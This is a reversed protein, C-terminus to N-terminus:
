GERGFARQPGPNGTRGQGPHNGLRDPECGRAITPAVAALGVTAINLRKRIWHVMQDLPSIASRRAIPPEGAEQGQMRDLVEQRFTAVDPPAEIGLSVVGQKTSVVQVAVNISPFLVKERLCRSIVLM